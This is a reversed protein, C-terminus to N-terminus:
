LYNLNVNIFKIFLDWNKYQKTNVIYIITSAKVYQFLNMM